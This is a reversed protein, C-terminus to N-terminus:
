KFPQYEMLGPSDGREIMPSITEKGYWFTVQKGGLFWITSPIGFFEPAVVGALGIFADMGYELQGDISTANICQNISVMVGLSGIIRGANTYKVSMMKGYSNMGGTSGNGHFDFDRIVDLKDRWTRTLENFYLSSEITTYLNATILAGSVIEINTNQNQQVNSSGGHNGSGGGGGHGITPVNDPNSWPPTPAGGSLNPTYEYYEYINSLRPNDEPRITVEPLNITIMGNNYYPVGPPYDGNGDGPRSAWGTLDVFSLPNYMCYAYRNFGQTTLPNQVYRDASLFSSMMPDYMRGNMNILGFNYLHEHGTYGRDFTFVTQTQPTDWSTYSMRNGWPSFHTQQVTTKNEDLVKEWSGLHDTLPYYLSETVGENVHVAVIRGEAYIYDLRRGNALDEDTEYLDSVRTKEKVLSNNYNIRTHRRVGSADYDFTIHYCKNKM